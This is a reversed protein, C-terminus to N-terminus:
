QNNNDPNFPQQDFKRKLRERREFEAAKEKALLAKVCADHERCMMASFEVGARRRAEQAKEDNGDGTHDSSWTVQPPAHYRTTSVYCVKCLYTSEWSVIAGRPVFVDCNPCKRLCDYCYARGAYFMPETWTDGPSFRCRHCQWPFHITPLVAKASDAMTSFITGMGVVKTVHILNEVRADQVGHDRTPDM